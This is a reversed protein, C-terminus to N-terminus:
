KFYDLNIAWFCKDFLNYANAMLISCFNESTTELLLVPKMAIECEKPKVFQKKKRELCETPTGRM